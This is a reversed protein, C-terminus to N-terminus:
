VIKHNKKEARGYYALIYTNAKPGNFYIKSKLGFIYIFSHHHDDITVCCITVGYRVYVM